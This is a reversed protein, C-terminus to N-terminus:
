RTRRARVHSHSLPSSKNYEHCLCHWVVEKLTFCFFAVVVKGLEIQWEGKAWVFTGKLSLSFPPINNQTQLYHLIPSDMSESLFVIKWLNEESISFESYFETGSRERVGAM